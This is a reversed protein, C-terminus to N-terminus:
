GGNENIGIRNGHFFYIFFIGGVPVKTLVHQRIVADSSMRLQNQPANPSSAALAHCRTLRSTGSIGEATHSRPRLDYVWDDGGDPSAVRCDTAKPSFHSDDGVLLIPTRARGRPSLLVNSSLVVSASREAGEEEEGEMSQSWADEDGEVTRQRNSHLHHLLASSEAEAIPRPTSVDPGLRAEVWPIKEDHGGDNGVQLNGEDSPMSTATNRITRQSANTYPQRAREKEGVPRLPYNQQPHQRSEQLEREECAGDDSGAERGSDVVEPPASWPQVRQRGSAHVMQGRHHRGARYPRGSTTSPRRPPSSADVVMRRGQPGLSPRLSVLALGDGGRPLKPVGRSPQDIIPGRMHETCRQQKPKIRRRLARKAKRGDKSIRGVSPISLLGLMKSEGSESPPCTDAPSRVAAMTNDVQHTCTAM